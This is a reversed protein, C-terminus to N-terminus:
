CFKPSEMDQRSSAVAKDHADRPFDTYNFKPKIHNM